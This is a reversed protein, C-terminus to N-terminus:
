PNSFRVESGGGGRRGERIRSLSRCLLLLGLPLHLILHLASGHFGFDIALERLPKKQLRPLYRVERHRRTEM